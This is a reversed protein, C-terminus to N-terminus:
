GNRFFSPMSPMSSVENSPTTMTKPFLPTSMIGHCCSVQKGNSEMRGTFGEAVMMGKPLKAEKSTLVDFPLVCCESGKHVVHFELTLEDPHTINHSAAGDLVPSTPAILGEACVLEACKEPLQIRDGLAHQKGNFSCCKCKCKGCTKRCNTTMWTGMVGDNGCYQRWSSCYKHWQAHDQCRCGDCSDCTGACEQDMLQGATTYQNCHGRRAACTSNNNSMDECPPGVPVNRRRIPMWDGNICRMLIGNDLKVKDGNTCSELASASVLAFFCGVILVFKMIAILAIGM